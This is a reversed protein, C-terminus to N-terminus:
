TLNFVARVNPQADRDLQALAIAAVDEIGIGDTRGARVAARTADLARRAAALAAPRGFKEIAALAVQAKLVEDVSPLRRLAGPEHTVPQGEIGSCSITSVAAGYDPKACWSISASRRSMTPLRTSRRIRSSICSRAM